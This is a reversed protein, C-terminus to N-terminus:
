VIGEWKSDENNSKWEEVLGYFIGHENKLLNAPTDFESVKGDDMVLIRDSVMVTDLRHAITLTTAGKFATQITEQIM